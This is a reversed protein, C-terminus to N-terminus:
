DMKVFIVDKGDERKLDRCPGVILQVDKCDMNLDRFFCGKCEEVTKKQLMCKMHMIGMKFKQGIKIEEGRM